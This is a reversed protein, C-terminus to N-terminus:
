GGAAIAILSPDDIFSTLPCCSFLFAVGTGSHNRHNIASPFIQKAVATEKKEPSSDDLCRRNTSRLPPLLCVSLCVLNAFHFTRRTKTKWAPHLKTERTRSGRTLNKQYSAYWWAKEHELKAHVSAGPTAATYYPRSVVSANKVGAKTEGPDVITHEDRPPLPFGSLPITTLREIQRDSLIPAYLLAQLWAHCPRDHFTVQQSM